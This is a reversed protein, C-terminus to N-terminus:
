LPQGDPTIAVLSDMRFRCLYIKKGNRTAQANMQDKIYGVVKACDVSVIPICGAACLGQKIGVQGSGLEDEGLWAYLEVDRLREPISLSM